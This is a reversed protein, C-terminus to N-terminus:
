MFSGQRITYFVASATVVRRFDGASPCSSPCIESDATSIATVVKEQEAQPWRYCNTPVECVKQVM